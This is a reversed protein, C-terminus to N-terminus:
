PRMTKWAATEPALMQWIMALAWVLLCTGHIDSEDLGRSIPIGYYTNQAKGVFFSFGGDEHAHRRILEVVHTLYARVTGSAESSACQHLVYVADVLHCGDPSPPHALCTQILREAFHPKV